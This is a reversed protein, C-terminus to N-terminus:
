LGASPRSSASRDDNGSCHVVPGLLRTIEETLTQALAYSCAVRPGATPLKIGIGKFLSFLGETRIVNFAVKFATADPAEMGSQLRSKALDLPYSVTLSVATSATSAGLKQMVTLTSHGTEQTLQEKVIAYTTFFATSGIANRLITPALGSYMGHTGQSVLAKMQSILSVQQTAGYAVQMRVKLTDLPQLIVPECVGVIAGSLGTFIVGSRQEGFYRHANVGAAQELLEKLPAVMGFKLTRQLVRYVAAVPLASYSKQVVQRLSFPAAADLGLINAFSAKLTGGIFFSQRSVQRRRAFVEFPYFILMEALGALAPGCLHAFISHNVPTQLSTQRVLAMLM